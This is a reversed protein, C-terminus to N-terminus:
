ILARDLWGVQSFQKHTFITFDNKGRSATWAPGIDDYRDVQKDTHRDREYMRDFRIFKNVTRYGLWELKETGFPMEINRHFGELLPTSHLHPLCFDVNEVLIQSWRMSHVSRRRAAILALTLRYRVISQHRSSSTIDTVTTRGTYHIVTVTCTQRRCLFGHM